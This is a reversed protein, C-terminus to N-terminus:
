GQNDPIIVHDHRVLVDVVRMEGEVVEVFTDIGAELAAYEVEARCGKSHRWGEMLYLMDAMDIMNFSVEMYTDWDFGIPLWATHLPVVTKNMEAVIRKEFELIAPRNYEPIGTMPAAIYAYVVM